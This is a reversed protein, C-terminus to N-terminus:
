EIVALVDGTNVTAGKQVLVTIRGSANAAIDNEMKMADLVIVAEGEKVSQGDKVKIDNVTGPMPSTLKVGGQPAKVAPASPASVAAAVPAQVAADASVEELEVVYNQGNVNVNFKRM